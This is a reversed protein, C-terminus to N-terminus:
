RATEAQRIDRLVRGAIEVRQTVSEPNTGYLGRLFARDWDSLGPTPEGGNEFLALITPADGPQPRSRLETFAAMAIYDALQVVTVGEIQREDVVVLVSGANRVANETLRSAKSFRLTPAGNYSSSEPPAARGDAQELIWNHWVRVPKDTAVFRAVVAPLGSGFLRHDHQSWLALLRQPEDSVVVYLNARCNPAGLPANAERAVESLRALVYEGKDQPLGAVLPCIPRRWRVLSRQPKRAVIGSVYDHALENLAKDSPAVVVGEVTTAIGPRPEALVVAPALVAGAIAALTTRLAM